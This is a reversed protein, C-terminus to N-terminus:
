HLLPAEAAPHLGRPHPALLGAPRELQGGDVVRGAVEEDDGHARRHRQRLAALVPFESRRSFPELDCVDPQPGGSIMLVALMAERGERAGKSAASAMARSSSLM